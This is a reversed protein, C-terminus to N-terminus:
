KGWELVRITVRKRGFRKAAAHSTLYIDIERGKIARGTDQVLYVGSYPGAGSVRVRSGLPLVAPDAAIVGPGSQSGSATTGEQSHATAWASFRRPGKAFVPTAWLVALFRRRLMPKGSIILAEM